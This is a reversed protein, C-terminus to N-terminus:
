QPGSYRQSDDFASQLCKVCSRFEIFIFLRNDANMAKAMVSRAIEPHPLSSFSSGTGVVMLTVPTVRSRCVMPIVSPSVAERAAVTAGAFADSLLTLQVLLALSTAVTSVSPLTVAKFAPSAVMVTVVFSPPLVAEQLTVTAAAVTATM